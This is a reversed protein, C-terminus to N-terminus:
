SPALSPRSAERHQVSTSATCPSGGVLRVSRDRAVHAGGLKPNLKTTALSDSPTLPLKQHPTFPHPSPNASGFGEITCRVSAGAAQAASALM